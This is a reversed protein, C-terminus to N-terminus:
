RVLLAEIDTMVQETEAQLFPQISKKIEPLAARAQTRTLTDSRAGTRALAREIAGRAFIPSLRSASVIKDFLTLESQEM